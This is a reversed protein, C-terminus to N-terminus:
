PQDSNTEASSDNDDPLYSLLWLFLVGSWFAIDLPILKFIAICLPTVLILRLM